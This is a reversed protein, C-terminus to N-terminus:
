KEATITSGELDSPRELVSRVSKGGRRGGGWRSVRLTEIRRGPVAIECV